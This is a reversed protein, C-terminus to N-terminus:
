GISAAIVAPSHMALIPPVPSTATSMAAFLISSIGKACIDERRPPANMIRIADTSTGINKVQRPFDQTVPEYRYEEHHRAISIFLLFLAIGHRRDRRKAKELARQETRLKKNNHVSFFTNVIERQYTIINNLTTRM